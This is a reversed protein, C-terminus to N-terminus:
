REENTLDRNKLKDNPLMLKENKSLRFVYVFLYM